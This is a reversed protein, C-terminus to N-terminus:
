NKKHDRKWEYHVIEDHGEVIHCISVKHPLKACCLKSCYRKHIRHHKKKLGNTHPHLNRSGRNKCLEDASIFLLFCFFVCIMYNEETSKDADNQSNQSVESRRINNLEHTTFSPKSSKGCFIQLDNEQTYWRLDKKHPEHGNHICM